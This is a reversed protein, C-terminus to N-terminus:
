LNTEVSWLDSSQCQDIHMRKMHNQLLFKRTFTTQCKECKFPREGTHLIVHRKLDTSWGFRRDCFPCVYKRQQYKMSDMSGAGSGTDSSSGSSAVSADVSSEIIDADDRTRTVESSNNLISSAFGGASSSSISIAIPSSEAPKNSTFLLSGSSSPIILHPMTSVMQLSEKTSATSTVVSHSTSTPLPSTLRSTQFNKTDISAISVLKTSSVATATIPLSTGRTVLSLSSNVTCGPLGLVSTAVPNINKGGGCNSNLSGLATAATSLASQSISVSNVLPSTCPNTVVSTIGSSVATNTTHSSTIFKPSVVSTIGCSVATNTTHSSTIFLPSVVSTIGCSVATNTTHSRPIFKPSKHTQTVPRLCSGSGPVSTVYGIGLDATSLLAPTPLFSTTVSIPQGSSATATCTNPVPTSTVVAPTPTVPPAPKAVLTTPTACNPRKAVLCTPLISMRPVTTNLVHSIPPSSTVVSKSIAATVVVKAPLTVSTISYSKPSTIQLASRTVNAHSATSPVAPSSGLPSKSVSSKGTLETTSQLSAAPNGCTDTSQEDDLSVSCMTLPDMSSGRDDEIAKEDDIVMGEDDSDQFDSGSCDSDIARRRRSFTKAHGKYDVPKSSKSSPSVLICSENKPENPQVLVLKVGQSTSPSMTGAATMIQTSVSNHKGEKAKLLNVKSEDMQPVITLIDPTRLPSSLKCSTENGVQPVITLSNDGSAPIFTFSNSSPTSVGVAPRISVTNTTSTVARSAPSSVIRLGLSPNIMVIEDDLSGSNVAVCFPVNGITTTVNRKLLAVPPTTKHSIAPFPSRVNSSHPLPEISVSKHDFSSPTSDLTTSGHNFLFSSRKFQGNVVGNPLVPALSVQGPIFPKPLLLPTASCSVKPRINIFKTSSEKTKTIPVHQQPQHQKLRPIPVKLIVDRKEAVTVKRDDMIKVDENSKSTVAINKGEDHPMLKNVVGVSKSQKGTKNGLVNAHDNQVAVANFSFQGDHKTAQITHDGIITAVVGTSTSVIPTNHAIVQSVPLGIKKSLLAKNLGAKAAAPKTQVKSNGIGARRSNARPKSKKSNSNVARKLLGECYVKPANLSSNVASSSSCMGRLSSLNKILPKSIKSDLQNSLSKSQSQSSGKLQNSYKLGIPLLLESLKRKKNSTVFEMQESFSDVCNATRKVQKGQIFKLVSVDNDNKNNRPSKEGITRWQALSTSSRSYDLVKNNNGLHGAGKETEILKDKCKENATPRLVDSELEMTNKPDGFTKLAQGQVSDGAESPSEPPIEQKPEERVQQLTEQTLLVNHNVPWPMELGNLLITANIAASRGRQQSSADCLGKDEHIGFHWFLSRVTCFQMPCMPCKLPTRIM